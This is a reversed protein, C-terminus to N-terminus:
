KWSKEGRERGKETKRRIKTRGSDYVRRESQKVRKNRQSGKVKRVTRLTEPHSAGLM